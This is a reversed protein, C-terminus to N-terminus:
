RRSRPNTMVSVEGAVPPTAATVTATSRPGALRISCFTIGAASM